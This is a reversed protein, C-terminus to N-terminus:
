IGPPMTGIRTRIREGATRVEDVLEVTQLEEVLKTTYTIPNPVKAPLSQLYPLWTSKEGAAKERLLWAALVATPIWHHVDEPLRKTEDPTLLPFSAELDKGVVIASIPLSIVLNGASINRAAQLTLSCM